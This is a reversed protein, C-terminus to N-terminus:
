QKEFSLMMFIVSPRKWPQKWSIASSYGVDLGLVHDDVDAGREDGVVGSINSTITVGL